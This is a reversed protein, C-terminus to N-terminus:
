YDVLDKNPIRGIDYYNDQGNDLEFRNTDSKCRIAMYVADLNFIDAKGLVLKQQSIINCHYNLTKQKKCM